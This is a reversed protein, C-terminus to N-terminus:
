PLAAISPGSKPFADSSLLEADLIDGGIERGSEDGGYKFVARVHHMDEVMKM